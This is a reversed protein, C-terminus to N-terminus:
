DENRERGNKHSADSVGKGPPRPHCRSSEVGAPPGIRRVRHERERDDAAHLIAGRAPRRRVARPTRLFSALQLPDKWGLYNWYDVHFALPFIRRGNKKADDALEGLVKDAPPCSSCGESTFLEVVAFSATAPEAALINNALFMQFVCIVTLFFAPKRM